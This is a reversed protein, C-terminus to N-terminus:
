PQKRPPRRIRKADELLKLMCDSAAWKFPTEGGIDEHLPNAGAELLLRACDRADARAAYFLPSWDDYEVETPAGCEDLLYQVAEARNQKCAECLARGDHALLDMGCERLARLCDVRGAAAAYAALNMYDVGGQWDPPLECLLVVEKLLEAPGRCCLAVVLEGHDEMPDAGAHLLLAAIQHWGQEVSNVTLLEGRTDATRLNPNAGARLAALFAKGDKREYAAQLLENAPNYETLGKERLKARKYRARAFLPSETPLVSPPWKVGKKTREPEEQNM